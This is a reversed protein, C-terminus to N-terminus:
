EIRQVVAGIKNLLEKKGKTTKYYKEKERAEKWDKCDEIYIQEWPVHAKTFASKGNNHEKSGKLFISVGFILIEKCNSGSRIIEKKSRM